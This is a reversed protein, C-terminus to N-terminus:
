ILSELQQRIYDSTHTEHKANAVDLGRQFMQRAKDFQGAARLTKGAEVYAALYTGDQQICTNFHEMAMEYDGAAAHEMALSYHLFTDAPNKELMSRIATIRDTM